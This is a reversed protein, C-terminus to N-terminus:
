IPLSIISHANIFSSAFFVSNDAQFEASVQPGGNFADVSQAQSYLGLILGDITTISGLAVEPSVDDESRIELQDECSTFIIVAM